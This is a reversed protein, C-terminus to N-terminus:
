RVDYRIFIIFSIAYLVVTYIVLLLMYVSSNLIRKPVAVVKETYVPVENINIKQKSSSYNEYPNLWHPSNKDAADFTKFWSLFQEQYAHLDEWNKEFRRFGGDLVSEDAMEIMFVPSICTLKSTLEYQRFQEQYWADRIKKEDLMFAMQMAARIKHAPEFPDGSSRWKGEPFSAEIIKRSNITNEEVIQSPTIPDIFNSLLLTTHPIIYLFFLWVLLGILLSTNPNYSLVSVLIGLASICAILLVSLGAFLGIESLTAGSIIVQGSVVVILISLIFGLVLFLGLTILAGLFKGTLITSRSVSNSMGLALTRMEKEGSISDYTFIIALFSFLVTIIFEWNLNKSPLVFPNKSGEAISFGYVNFATYIITNPINEEESSAIFASNRPSFPFANMNMAFNSANDSVNKLNEHLKSIGQEYISKQERYQVVFSVSSISFLVITLVFAFIFKLSYVNTQLEKIIITKLM